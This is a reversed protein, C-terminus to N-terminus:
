INKLFRKDQFNLQMRLKSKREPKFQKKMKKVKMSKKM